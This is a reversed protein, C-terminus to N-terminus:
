EMLQTFHTMVKSFEEMDRKLVSFIILKRRDDLKIRVIKKANEKFYKEIKNFDRDTSSFAFKFYKSM